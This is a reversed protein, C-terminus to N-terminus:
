PPPYRMVYNAHPFGCDLRYHGKFALAAGPEDARPRWVIDDDICDCTGIDPPGWRQELARCIRARSEPTQDTLTISLKGLVDNRDCTGYCSEIGLPTGPLECAAPDLDLFGYGGHEDRGLPGLAFAPMPDCEIACQIGGVRRAAIQEFTDRPNYQKGYVRKGCGQPESEAEPEQERPPSPENGAPEHSTCAITLVAVLMVLVVRRM